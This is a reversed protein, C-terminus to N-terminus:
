AGSRAGNGVWVTPATSSALRSAEMSMGKRNRNVGENTTVESAPAPTPYVEIRMRPDSWVWMLTVMLPTARLSASDWWTYQTSRGSRALLTSLKVMWRPTPLEDLPAPANPAVTAMWVISNLSSAPPRTTSEPPENPVNRLM